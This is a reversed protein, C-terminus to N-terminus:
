CWSSGGLYCVNGVRFLVSISLRYADRLLKNAASLLRQKPSELHQGAGHQGQTLLSRTLPRPQECCTRLRM